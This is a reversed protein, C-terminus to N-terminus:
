DLLASLGDADRLVIGRTGAREILGGQELASLQRSVTEITLGLLGAIEGRTLPLDFRQARHCGPGAADAFALLLGAVRGRADRRGILDTLARAEDLDTVSRQLVSQQLAPAASMLREFDARPVLCLESDTLAVADYRIQAFFLQGLLGAPHVLAVIREVGDAGTSCLKVAGRVLTACAVSDDGAAFITEGRAFRRHRGIRSFADLEGPDLAACVAADRVPCVTCIAPIAPAPEAPFADMRNM